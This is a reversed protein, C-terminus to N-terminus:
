PRRACPSRPPRGDLAAPRPGATGAARKARSEGACPQSSSRGAATRNAAAGRPAPVRSHPALAACGVGRPPRWRSPPYDPRRGRQTATLGSVSPPRRSRPDAPPRASGPRPDATAELVQALGPWPGPRLPCHGRLAPACPRRPCRVAPSLARQAPAAPCLERPLRQLLWNALKIREM